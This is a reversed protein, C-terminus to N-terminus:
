DRKGKSVAAPKAPCLFAPKEAASSGIGTMGKGKGIPVRVPGTREPPPEQPGFFAKDEDRCPAQNSPIKFAGDDGLLYTPATATYPACRCVLAEGVTQSVINKLVGKKVLADTAPTLWEENFEDVEPQKPDEPEAPKGKGPAPVNITLSGKGPAMTTTGKGNTTPPPAPAPCVCNEMVTVGTGGDSGKGVSVGKGVSNGNGVSPTGKGPNGVSLWYLNRRNKRAHGKVNRTPRGGLRRRGFSSAFITDECPVVVDCNNQTATVTYQGNFSFLGQLRRGEPEEEEDDDGEEEELEEEGPVPFKGAPFLELRVFQISRFLPDCFSDTYMNYSERLSAELASKESQTVKLPNGTFVVPVVQTFTGTNECQSLGRERTTAPLSDQDANRAIARESHVCGVWFLSALLLGLPSYQHLRM